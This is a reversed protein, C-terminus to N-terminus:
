NTNALDEVGMLSRLKKFVEIQVSKKLIDVIQVESRSHELKLLGNNVQDGL